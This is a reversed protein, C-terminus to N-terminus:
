FHITEPQLCSAYDTYSTQRDYHPDMYINVDWLTLPVISNDYLLCFWGMSSSGCRDELCECVKVVEPTGENLHLPWIMEAALFLYESGFSWSGLKKGNAGIYENELVRADWLMLISHELYAVVQTQFGFNELDSVHGGIQM